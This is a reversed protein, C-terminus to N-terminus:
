HKSKKRAFSRMDSCGGPFLSMAQGFVFVFGRAFGGAFVFGGKFGDGGVM